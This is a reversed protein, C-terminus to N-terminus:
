SDRVPAGFGEAVPGSSQWPAGRGAGRSGAFGRGRGQGQDQGRGQVRGRHGGNGSWSTWGNAATWSRGRPYTSRPNQGSVQRVDNATLDLEGELV